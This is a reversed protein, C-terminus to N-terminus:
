AGRGTIFSQVQQPPFGKKRWIRQGQGGNGVYVESGPVLGNRCRTCLTPVWSTGAVRGHARHQRDARRAATVSELATEQGRAGLATARRQHGPTPSQPDHTLLGLATGFGHAHERARQTHPPGDASPGCYFFRKLHNCRCSKPPSIIFALSHVISM